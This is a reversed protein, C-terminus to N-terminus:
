GAAPAIERARGAPLELELVRLWAEASRQREAGWAADRHLSKLITALRADSGVELDLGAAAFHQRIAAFPPLAATQRHEGVDLAIRAHARHLAFSLEYTLPDFFVPAQPEALAWDVVGAVGRRGFLVNGPFFDGHAFGAPWRRGLLGPLRAALERRLGEPLGLATCQRLLEEPGAGLWADAAVSGSASSAALRTCWGLAAALRSSCKRARKAGWTHHMEVEGPSASCLLFARGNIAGARLIRPLAAQLDAALTRHALALQEAERVIAADGNSARAVKAVAVPRSDRDAFLFLLLAAGPHPYDSGGWKLVHVRRPSPRGPAVANWSERLAQSLAEIM